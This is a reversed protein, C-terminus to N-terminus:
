KSSLVRMRVLGFVRRHRGRTCLVLEGSKPKGNRPLWAGRMLLAPMTAGVTFLRMEKEDAAVFRRSDLWCGARINTPLKIQEGDPLNVLIIRDGATDYYAFHKDDPSLPRGLGALGQYMGIQSASMRIECLREPPFKGPGWQALWSRGDNSLVFVIRGDATWQPWLQRSGQFDTPCIQEVKVTDLNVIYLGSSEAESKLVVVAAQKGSASVAPMMIHKQGMSVRRTRGSSVDHIGLDCRGTENYAVFVLRRSDASWAPWAAGSACVMRAVAGRAVPQVYLSMAELGQGTFLAGLEIPQDNRFDLYAIWKGDPSIVPLQLGSNPVEGMPEVQVRTHTSQAPEWKAEIQRDV